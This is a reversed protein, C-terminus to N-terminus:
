LIGFSAQRTSYSRLSDGVPTASSQQAHAGSPLLSYPGTGASIQTFDSIVECRGPVCARTSRRHPWPPFLGTHIRASGLRSPISRFLPGVASLETISLLRTLTAIAMVLIKMTPFPAYVQAPHLLNVACPNKPTGLDCRRAAPSVVHM